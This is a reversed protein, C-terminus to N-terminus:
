MCLQTNHQRLDYILIIYYVRTVVLRSTNIIVRTRLITLPLVTCFDCKREGTFYAYITYVYVRICPVYSISKRIRWNDASTYRISQFDIFYTTNCGESRRYENAFWRRVNLRNFTKNAGFLTVTSITKYKRYSSYKRHITGAKVRAFTPWLLATFIKM